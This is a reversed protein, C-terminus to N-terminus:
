WTFAYGRNLGGPYWVRIPTPQGPVAEGLDVFRKSADRNPRRVEHTYGMFRVASRNADRVRVINASNDVSAREFIYEGAPLTVGPLATPQSFTLRDGAAAAASEHTGSGAAVIALALIAVARRRGRGPRNCVVM